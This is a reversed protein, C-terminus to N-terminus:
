TVQLKKTQDHRPIAKEDSCHKSIHTSVSDSSILCMNQYYYPFAYQQQQDKSWHKNTLCHFICINQLLSEIKSYVPLSKASLTIQFVCRVFFINHRVLYERNTLQIEIFAKNISFIMTYFSFTYRFTIKYNWYANCLFSNTLIWHINNFYVILMFRIKYCYFTYTYIIDVQM